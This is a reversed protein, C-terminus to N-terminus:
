LNLKLLVNCTLLTVSGFWFVQCISVCQLNYDTFPVNHTSVFVNPKTGQLGSAESDSTCEEALAEQNTSADDVRAKSPKLFRNPNFTDVDQGWSNSDMQLLQVPVVLIAGAPLVM